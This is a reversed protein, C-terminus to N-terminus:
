ATSSSALSTRPSSAAAPVMDALPDLWANVRQEFVDVGPVREHDHGGLARALDVVVVVLEAFAGEVLKRGEHLGARLVIQRHGELFDGLALDRVLVRALEIPAMARTRRPTEPPM